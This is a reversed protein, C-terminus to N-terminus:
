LRQKEWLEFFRGRKKYLEDFNGSEILRGDEIVLIRDMERITTLRHAIVVATVAQFFKHLSDRIKEESELDLHSTAEDLFLIQPRRFIARAIGLRQKEGGSLKIGKEGIFTELRRPLKDTFEKVHAIRVANALYKEDSQHAADAITINDKLSFNFVETEQLVIAVERLFSSRKIRRLPVADFLIEGTYNENEKLLLKMITTKGAGSLGVIGIREGRNIEFSLDKLVTNDGYAFSLNKVTIKKWDVPFTMKGSESDIVVPERYMAQMRAVGYKAIILEQSVDSLEEASKWLNNFYNYALVLLGVEYHGRTIGYAIFSIIGLRFTQGWFSVVGNRFQFRFVRLQIRKYLEAASQRVMRFLTDAIGLVKITRVNNVAEFTLGSLEEEQANVAIAARGARRTLSISISSYTILFVVLLWTVTKDFRAMVAIMGVFFVFIEILNTIWIRMIRDLGDGGKQLRKLKNGANEKEHWTIDLAFLHRVTRLQGDLSIKEGLQYGFFKAVHHAGYHYVSVAIWTYIINWLGSLPDGADYRSFFNVVAAMAYGPYLWAVDSTARLFTALWFRWRYPRFIEAIDRILTLYSYKLDNEM